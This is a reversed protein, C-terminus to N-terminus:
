RNLLYDDIAMQQEHSFDGMMQMYDGYGPKGMASQILAIGAATKKPALQLLRADSFLAVNAPTAKSMLAKGSAQELAYSAFGAMALNQYPLRGILGTIRRGQQSAKAQSISNAMEYRTWNKILDLRDKGIVAEVSQSQQKNKFVNNLMQEFSYTNKGSEVTSQALVRAKEFLTQFATDAINKQQEPPLKSIVGKVYEPRYKGSLVLGEFFEAPREAVHVVNGNNIQSVLSSTMNSRREAALKIANKYYSNAKNIGEREAIAMAENIAGIAPLTDSTFLGNMNKMANVQRGAQEIFQWRNSGNFLTNKVSSDIANLSQALKGIDAIEVNGINVKSSGMLRDVVSRRLNDFTKTPIVAKAAAWDATGGRALLEVVEEPNTFGDNVLRGVFESAEVPEIMAKYANNAARLKAAGNGTLSAVSRDIDLSLAKYIEKAQGINMGPFLDSKGGGIIAGIQSRLQRAAGLDQKAGVIDQLGTVTARLPALLASEEGSVTAPFQKVAQRIVKKTNDLSVFKGGTGLWKATSGIEGLAEEYLLDTAQKADIFKQKAGGIAALGAESPELTFPVTAAKIRAMAKAEISTAAQETMGVSQARLAKDTQTLSEALADGAEVSSLKAPNASRIMDALEASTSPNYGEKQLAQKAAKGEDMFAEINSSLASRTRAMQVVKELAKPAVVGLATEIVTGQARRGLIEPANIARGTLGRFAADQLAGFVNSAVASVGSVQALKAIGGATGPTKGLTSVIGATLEPGSSAIEAIDGADLGAPDDVVWKFGNTKDPIRVLARNSSLPIFSDKGYESEYYAKKEPATPAFGAVFRQAMPVTETPSVPEALGLQKQVNRARQQAMQQENGAVLEPITSPDREQAVPAQQAMPQAQTLAAPAASQQSIYSEIESATPERNAEIEFTGKNTEIQYTPM